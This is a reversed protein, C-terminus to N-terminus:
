KLGGENNFLDEFKRPMPEEDEIIQAKKQVDEVQETTLFREKYKKKLEENEAILKENELKSQELAKTIDENPKDTMSDEIDELLSISINDDTIVEAIRKKLEDKSLQM